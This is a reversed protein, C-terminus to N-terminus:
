PLLLSSVLKVLVAAPLLESACLYMFFHLKSFRLFHGFFSVSRIYRNTILILTVILSIFLMVQVWAGEGFALIVTFPILVIGIIKNILFVNFSYNGTTEQINFVWGTFKLFLFRISYVAIFLLVFGMIMIIPYHHLPEKKLVYSLAYYLYVGMSICFFIDMILNAVSNQLPDRLQRSSLTPNRFARFLNRFFAPHVARFIGIFTILVLIIFFDPTRDRFSHPQEIANVANDQDNFYFSHKLATAMKEKAKKQLVEEPISIGYVLRVKAGSSALSCFLLFVLFAPIRCSHFILKM